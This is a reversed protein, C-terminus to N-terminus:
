PGGGLSFHKLLTYVIRDGAGGDGYVGDPWPEPGSMGAAAGIRASDFGVLVNAGHEVTEVWETVNRLTACPVKLYLAEKQLGGSDTYIMRANALLVMMKLYGVPAVTVLNGADAETMTEMAKATRPHVPFVVPKPLKALAGLVGALRASSDVTEARHLTALYYERRAFTVPEGSNLKQAEVSDRAFGDTDGGLVIRLLDYMVDGVMHVGATIGEKELNRVAADSPCFLLESVHDTLLRNIEEPTSRDYSRLGAEVHFVPINLKAAVLAGAITSNTDGYVIVAKPREESLVREIGEMMLGTQAGHGASGVGLNWDAGPIALQDFQEQSLERDYHQGTHLIKCQFHKKFPSLIAALKIFQPRAGVVHCLYSM